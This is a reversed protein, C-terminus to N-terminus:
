NHRAPAGGNAIPDTHDWELGAQRGCGEESCRVGDLNPGLDLATRVEAPIHRGFHRVKKIDTGDLLVAKLFANEAMRRAVSVPVLGVGPIHCREGEDAHGRCYAAWDVVVVLDARPRASGAKGMMSVFADAEYAARPERRGDQYAKRFIRDTEAEIRNVIPTGVEPPLRYRGCVM